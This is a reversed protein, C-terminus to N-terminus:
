RLRRIIVDAVNDITTDVIRGELRPDLLIEVAVRGNGNGGVNRGVQQSLNNGLESMRKNLPVFLAIEPGAEGFTAQTSTNAFDIGGKAHPGTTPVPPGIMPQSLMGTISRMYASAMAAYFKYIREAAGGPGLVNNLETQIQGMVLATHGLEKDLEGAIIAYQKDAQTQIDILEQKWKADRDAKALDYKVARDNAATTYRTDEDDQKQQFNADEDIKDQEWKRDRDEKERRAEETIAALRAMM